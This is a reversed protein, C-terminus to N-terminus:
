KTVGNKARRAAAILADYSAAHHGGDAVSLITSLRGILVDRPDDDDVALPKTRQNEWTPYMVSHAETSVVHAIYDLLSRPLHRTKADARLRNVVRITLTEDDSYTM